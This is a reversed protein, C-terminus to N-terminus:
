LLSKFLKQFRFNDMKGSRQPGVRHCNLLDQVKLICLSQTLKQQLLQWNSVCAPNLKDLGQRVPVLKRVHSYDTGQVEICKSLKTGHRLLFLVTEPAHQLFYLASIGIHKKM